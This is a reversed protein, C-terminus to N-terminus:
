TTNDMRSNAIRRLSGKASSSKAKGFAHSPVRGFGSLRRKSRALYKRGQTAEGLEM